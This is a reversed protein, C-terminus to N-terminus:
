GVQSPRINKFEFGQEHALPWIVARISNRLKALARSFLEFEPNSSTVVIEDVRVDNLAIVFHHVAADIDALVRGFASGSDTVRARMETLKVRLADIARWVYDPMERADDFYM